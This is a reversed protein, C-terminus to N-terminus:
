GLTVGILVDKVLHRRWEYAPLWKLVPFRDSAMQQKLCTFCKLRSQLPTAEVISENFASTLDYETEFQKVKISASSEEPHILSICSRLQAGDSKSRMKVGNVGNKKEWELSM